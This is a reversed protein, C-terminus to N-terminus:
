TPDSNSNIRRTTFSTWWTRWSRPSRMWALLLSKAFTKLTWPSLRCLLVMPTSTFLPCSCLLALCPSFACVKFKKFSVAAAMLELCARGVKHGESVDSDIEGALTVLSETDDGNGDGDGSKFSSPSAQLLERLVILLRQTQSLDMAWQMQQSTPVSSAYKSLGHITTTQSVPKRMWEVYCEPILHVDENFSLRRSPPSPSSSSSSSSPPCPPSSPPCDDNQAPEAFSNARLYSGRELMSPGICASDLIDQVKALDEAHQCCRTKHWLAASTALTHSTKMQDAFAKM